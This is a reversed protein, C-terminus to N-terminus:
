PHERIQVVTWEGSDNKEVKWLAPIDVSGRIRNDDRDFTDASYCVWIWGENEDLHASWLKLSYESYAADPYSDTSTAYRALLGYEAENEERTHRVDEFAKDALRLVAGAERRDSASGICLAKGIEEDTYYNGLTMSGIKAIRYVPFFCLIVAALVFCLVIVLATIKGKDSKTM